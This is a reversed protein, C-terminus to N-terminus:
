IAAVIEPILTGPIMPSFNKRQPPVRKPPISQRMPVGEFEDEDFDVGKPKRVVRPDRAPVSSVLIDDDADEETEDGSEDEEVSYTPAGSELPVDKSLVCLGLLFFLSAVVRM